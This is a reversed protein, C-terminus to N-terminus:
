MHGVNRGVHTRCQWPIVQNPARMDRGQLHLSPVVGEPIDEGLQECCAIDMKFVKDGGSEMEKRMHGEGGSCRHGQESGIMTWCRGRNQGWKGEDKGEMMGGM